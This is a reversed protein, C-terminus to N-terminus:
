VLTEMLFMRTQPFPLETSLKHSPANMATYQIIEKEKILDIKFKFIFYFLIFYFLIFYFLIFLTFYILVPLQLLILKYFLEFLFYLM